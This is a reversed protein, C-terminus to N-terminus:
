VCLQKISDLFPYILYRRHKRRFNSCPNKVFAFNYKKNSSTEHNIVRPIFGACWCRSVSFFEPSYFTQFFTYKRIINWTRLAYVHKACSFFFPRVKHFMRRGYLKKRNLTFVFCFFNYLIFCESKLLNQHTSLHARM